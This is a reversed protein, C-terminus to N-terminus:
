RGYIRRTRLAASGLFALLAVLLLEPLNSGTHPLASISHKRVIPASSDSTAPIAPKLHNAATASPTKLAPPPTAKAVYAPTPPTASLPPEVRYRAAEIAPQADPGIRTSKLTWLTVIQMDQTSLRDHTVSLNDSAPDVALVKEPNTKAIAVAQAKPYVFEVPPAGPFAFGRLASKGKGSWAIPGTTRSASLSPTILGLFTSEVKGDSGTIQLIVRDSLHEIISIKYQGAAISKGPIVTKEDLSFNVSLPTDPEALMAALPTPVPPHAAYLPSASLAAAILLASLRM